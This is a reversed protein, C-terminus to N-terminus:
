RLPRLDSATFYAEEDAIRQDYDIAIQRPYGLADDYTVEVGAADRHLADDVVGFLADVTLAMGPLPTVPEGTEAHVISGPQGNQVRVILPATATPACFCSRQVRFEYSTYGRDTWRRQAAELDDRDGSPSFPWCASLLLVSAALVSRPLSRNM